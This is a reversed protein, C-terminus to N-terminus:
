ESGTEFLSTKVTQVHAQGVLIDVTLYLWTGMLVFLSLEVATLNLLGKRLPVLGLPVLSIFSAAIIAITILIVYKSSFVRYWGPFSTSHILRSLLVVSIASAAAGGTHLVTNMWLAPDDSVRILGVLIFGLVIVFYLGGAVRMEWVGERNELWSLMRRFWRTLLGGGALREPNNEITAKIMGDIDFWLAWLGCSAGVLAATFLPASPWQAGATSVACEWWQMNVEDGITCVQPAVSFSLGLGLAFTVLGMM